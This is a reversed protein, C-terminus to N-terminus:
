VAHFNEPKVLIQQEKSDVDDDNKIRVVYRRLKEQFYKITGVKGNLHPAKILGRLIVKADPSFVICRRCDEDHGEERHREQCAKGCYYVANCLLCHLPVV